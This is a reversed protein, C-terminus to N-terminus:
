SCVDQQALSGSATNKAFSSQAGLTAQKCEKGRLGQRAGVVRVKAEVQLDGLEMRCGSGAKLEREAECRVREMTKQEMGVGGHGKAVAVWHLLQFQSAAESGHASTQASGGVPGQVWIGWFWLRQSNNVGWRGEAGSRSM